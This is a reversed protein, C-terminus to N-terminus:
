RVAFLSRTLWDGVFTPPTAVVILPFILAKRFADMDRPKWFWEYVDDAADPIVSVPHVVVMDAALAVTGVPLIM